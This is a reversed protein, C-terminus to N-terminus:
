QRGAVPSNRMWDWNLLKHEDASLTRGATKRYVARYARATRDWDFDALRERGKARLKDRLPADAAIRQLADAMSVPDLPDFLLGADGVQEPLATVNSSLVPLSESWAEFIPLSNAEFLTPLVLYGALNYLARLEEPSVFGLFHVQDELKLEAIRAQLAPWSGEHRAGTCVLHVKLERQDRLLALADFLRAHNKHPWTMSPYFAFGAEIKYKALVAARGEDTVDRMFHMPAAEPVVQIKDPHVAFQRVVDDKIWQSNVFIAQSLRCAAPYIVERWALEEPTFFQPYHLHQLDHPNYVTPIACYVFAQTPFHFVDCGLSEIYGDSLPLEPWRPPTYLRSRIGPLPDRMKQWLSRKTQTYQRLVTQQNVGLGGLWDVQSQSRCSLVYTEPGDTLRGLASILSHIAPAVGGYFGPEVDINIGVRM